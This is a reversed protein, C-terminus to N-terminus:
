VLTCVTPRVGPLLPQGGEAALAPWFEITATAASPSGSLPIPLIEPGAVATPSGGGPGAGMSANTPLSALLYRNASPKLRLPAPSVRCASFAYRNAIFVSSELGAM